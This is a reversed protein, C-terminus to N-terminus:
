KLNLVVSAKPILYSDDWFEELYSDKDSSYDLLSQQLTDGEGSSKFQPAHLGGRSRPTRYDLRRSCPPVARLGSDVGYSLSVEAVGAADKSLPM